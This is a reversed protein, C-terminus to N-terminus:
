LQLIVSNKILKYSQRGSDTEGVMNLPALTHRTASFTYDQQVLMQVPIETYINNTCFNRLNTGFVFAASFAEFVILLLQKAKADFFTLQSGLRWNLLCKILLKKGIDRQWFLWVCVISAYFSRSVSAYLFTAQLFTLSILGALYFGFFLIDYITLKDWDKM